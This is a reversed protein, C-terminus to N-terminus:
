APGRGSFADIQEATLDPVGVRIYLAAFRAMVGELHPGKLRLIREPRETAYAFESTRGDAILQTWQESTSCSNALRIFAISCTGIHRLLIASPRALDPACPPLFHLDGLTNRIVQRKYGKLLNEPILTLVDESTLTSRQIAERIRGLRDLIESMSAVAQEFRLRRGPTADGLRKSADGAIRLIDDPPLKLDWVHEIALLESPKRLLGEANKHEQDLLSFGAYSTILQDLDLIPLYNVVPIKNQALDCRPTIVMGCCIPPTAHPLPLNNWIDGQAPDGSPFRVYYEEEINGVM